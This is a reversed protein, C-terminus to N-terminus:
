LKTTFKHRAVLMKTYIHEDTKNTIMKVLGKCSLETKLQKVKKGWNLDLLIQLTM